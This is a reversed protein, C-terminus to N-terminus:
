KPATNQQETELAKAM